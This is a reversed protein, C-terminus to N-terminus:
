RHGSELVLHCCVWIEVELCSDYGMPLPLRLRNGYLLAWDVEEEHCAYFQGANGQFKKGHLVHKGDAARELYWSDEVTARLGFAQLKTASDSVILRTADEYRRAPDTASYVPIFESLELSTPYIYQAKLTGNDLSIDFTERKTTGWFGLAGYHEDDDPMSLTMDDILGPVATETSVTPRARLRIVADRPDDCLKTTDSIQSPWDTPALCVTDTSRGPRVSPSALAFALLGALLM